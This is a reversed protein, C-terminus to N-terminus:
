QNKHVIHISHSRHALLLTNFIVLSEVCTPSSRFKLKFNLHSTKVDLHHPTRLEFSTVVTVRIKGSFLKFLNGQHACALILM